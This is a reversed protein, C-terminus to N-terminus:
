WENYKETADNVLANCTEPVISVTYDNIGELPSPITMDIIECGSMTILLDRSGASAGLNIIGNFPSGGKFYQDYLTKAHASTADLTINLAYERNGVQPVDIVKSGNMYHPGILNNNVSFEFDKLETFTTGSPLHLVIDSWLFPRLTSETTATRAGSSFAVSQGLYDMSAEVIDGQSASITFNNVMAGQVTRIFNLGTPNFYKSDELEFSKLSSVTGSFAVDSTNSACESIAHTYPSPSGSDVCSGMAFALFKWDQPNYTLTGTVDRAGAIFKDVNRTDTGLYRLQTINENEAIDNASALGVWQGSTSITGYAGSEYAFSVKNHDGYYTGM